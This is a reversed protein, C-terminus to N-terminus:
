LTKQNEEKSLIYRGHGVFYTQLYTKELLKRDCLRSIEASTRQLFPLMVYRRERLEAFDEHMGDSQSNTATQHSSQLPFHEAIRM